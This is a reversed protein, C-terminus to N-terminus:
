ERDRRGRLRAALKERTRRLRARVAGESLGYRTGIEAATEMLLHYRLFLEGEPPPMAMLRGILEQAAEDSELEDWFATEQVRDNELLPLEKRRVLRRRRDVALNRATVILFGRLTDARLSGASRWARVLVDAAVEEADQPSEPLVRRVVTFILGGYQKALADLGQGPDRQLLRILGTDEM